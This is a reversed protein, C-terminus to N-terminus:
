LYNVLSMQSVKSVTSLLAQYNMSIQSFTLYADAMDTDITESRLKKVQVSLIENRNITYELANGQAGNKTHAKEVHDQLHDFTLISNQIGINRMSSSYNFEVGGGPRYIGEHVATLIDDIQAFFDVHPDNAVLANNAHFVLAAAQGEVRPPEVNTNLLFNNSNSDAMSFEMPTIARHLDKLYLKGSNDLSIEINNKAANLMREYSQQEDSPEGPLGPVGPRGIPIQGNNAPNFINQLDETSANQINMIMGLVDALQQYSVNDGDTPVGAVQPPNGEPNLIPVKIPQAPNANDTLPIPTDVGNINRIIEVHETIEFYSGGDAASRFVINAKMPLGNIDKMTLEYTSGNLSLNPDNFAVESLKTKMTAYENTARVIQSNNGQLTSGEIAFQVKDYEVAFDNRFGNVAANNAQTTMTIQLGAAGDYPLDNPNRDPPTTQSINQDVITIKGNIFEVSLSQPDNPNAYNQQIFDLLDQMTSTDTINFTANVAQNAAEKDPTNAINGGFTISNVEGPFIDRLLTTNKAIENEHTRFTTPIETRRHDYYDGVGQISNNAFDGLYPSQIYYNVKAGSNLLANIDRVGMGDGPNNPDNPDNAQDQYSSSVMFFEINSRGSTLDKIEIQGWKNLSVDVVQTTSTNGFEQGIRDLLDQVKVAKEKSEYKTDLAFKAKFATGDAKRGTIYFVEPDDNNTPDDDNDGVLDRITDQATIYVETGIGTPHQKDMIAPHLQSQNLKPVNATIVRNVDNDSGFFLEAGTINYTQLSKNGILAQMLQDNGNYTGDTNFPINTNATGAFIYQGGVSTNALNLFHSRLAELDSALAERSTVSHIDNAAHILKQKFTDMNKSIDSLATDTHQTWTQANQAVTKNQALTTINYDLNLTKDFIISDQYGYQIKQGSFQALSDSVQSYLKSQRYQQMNYTQFQSIRM